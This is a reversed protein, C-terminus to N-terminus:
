LGWDEPGFEPLGEERTWRLIDLALQLGPTAKGKHTLMSVYAPTVKFKQAIAERSFNYKQLFKGFPNLDGGWRTPYDAQLPSRKQAPAGNVLAELQQPSLTQLVQLARLTDVIKVGGPSMIGLTNKIEASETGRVADTASREPAGDSATTTSTRIMTGKRRRGM